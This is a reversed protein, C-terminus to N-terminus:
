PVLTGLALVGGADAQHTAGATLTFTLGSSGTTQQVAYGAGPVLGTILSGQVTAPVTWTCTAPVSGMVRPFLVAVRGLVVGDIATGSADRFPQAPTRAVGADAGQLVNLFRLDQPRAPDEIVMHGLTPELVALSLTPDVPVWTFAPATPLLTQVFLNQGGATTATLTSGAVAPQTVFNLNFQKFLGPHQSIARDYIVLHDPQVWVIARSAHLIDMIGNAPTWYDPSNYLPTLDSQACTYGAGLSVATVPDGASM